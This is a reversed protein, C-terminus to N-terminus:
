LYREVIKKIHFNNRVNINEDFIIENEDISLVLEKIKEAEEISFGYRLLWIEKEDNTGYKFYNVMESARVDQSVEHYQDFAAIFVDALSFSIVKDLFDYTDYVILDYNFDSITKRRFRSPLPSTLKSDPLSHPIASYTIALQGILKNCEDLPIIGAKHQKRIKRQEDQKTLYSYRLGLLEKFTKGQIQWLLITISASLVTKEGLKLERGLSLEYIGAFATKLKLRETKTMDQYASGDILKGDRFLFDLARVILLYSESSRLRDTKKNPLNYEDNLEGERVAHIFESLDDPLDHSGEDLQSSTSLSSSEILKEVFSKVNRVIIYGYDFNNKTNTSRGARGILNKLGLVRDEKTGSFRVNEVWVIDFPMNVGQALTSTAFCIKSFGLNTFKEILFRVALPISGHHIVVGKRMLEVLESDKGKAGILEEIEDIIENADTNVIASCLAIYHEFTDEFSKDYISTKTIYILVSGGSVLKEQVVDYPFDCKNNKLHADKIFPSFCEFKNTKKNFNLYIKGVSNQQYREFASDKEFDHKILQAEPNEIFPHAFVKKAGPFIKASRRVFADFTIGRIKEESIQAEDFLFLSPKYSDPSKFIESAREPTVIFIRRSTKNINVDDVFQLILIDKQDKVIERVALIYEAILARSPVVIIIDGSEQKILERFLFSKGASTPASFSFYKNAIIKKRISAQVPTFSQGTESQIAQSFISYSFSLLDEPEDTKYFLGLLYMLQKEEKEFNDPHFRKLYSLTELDQQDIPGMEHLKAFLTTFIADPSELNILDNPKM